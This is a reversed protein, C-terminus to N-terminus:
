KFLIPQFQGGSTKAAEDWSHIAAAINAIPMLMFVCLGILVFTLVVGIVGLVLYAAFIGIGLGAKDPVFLLGLGPFFFSVLAPIVPHMQQGGAPTQYSLAPPIVSQPPTYTPYSSASPPTYGGTSSRQAEDTATRSTTEDANLWSGPEPTSTTSTAGLGAGCRVCFKAGDVNEGGCSTCLTM